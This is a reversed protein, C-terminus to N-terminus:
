RRKYCHLWVQAYREELSRVAARWLVKGFPVGLDTM